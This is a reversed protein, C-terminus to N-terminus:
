PVRRLSIRRMQSLPLTIINSTSTIPPILRLRMNPSLAQETNMMGGDTSSSSCLSTPRPVSEGSVMALRTAFASKSIDFAASNSWTTTFSMNSSATASIAKWNLSPYL